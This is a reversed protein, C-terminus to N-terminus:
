FLLYNAAGLASCFAQLVFTLFMGSQAKFWDFGQQQALQFQENHVRFWLFYQPFFLKNIIKEENKGARILIKDNGLSAKIKFMKMKAKFCLFVMCPDKQLKNRGELRSRM